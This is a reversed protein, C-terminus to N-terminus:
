QVIIKGRMWGKNPICYYPYSGTSIFKLAFIDGPKMYGSNFLNDPNIGDDVNTSTVTHQIEGINRWIVIDNNKISLVPRSYGPNSDFMDICHVNDKSCDLGNVMGETIKIQEVKGFGNMYYLRVLHWVIVLIALYVLLKNYQQPFYGTGISILLPAIIFIHIASVVKPNNIIKLIM